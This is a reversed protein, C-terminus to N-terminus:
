AVGEEDIRLWGIAAQLGERVLERGLDRPVGTGQADFWAVARKGSKKLRAEEDDAAKSSLWWSTEPVLTTTTPLHDVRYM